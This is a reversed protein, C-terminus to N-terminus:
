ETNSVCSSFCNGNEANRHGARGDNIQPLRINQIINLSFGFTDNFMSIMGANAQINGPEWSWYYREKKPFGISYQFDATWLMPDKIGTITFKTGLEHRGSGGSIIGERNMYENNESLPISWFGGFFLNIHRIQKLYDYYLTIDGFSYFFQRRVDLNNYARLIYPMEARLGHKKFLYEIALQPKFVYMDHDAINQAYYSLSGELTLKNKDLVLDFRQYDPEEAYLSFSAVILTIALIYYWKM